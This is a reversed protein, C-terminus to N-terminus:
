IPLPSPHTHLEKDSEGSVEEEGVVLPSIFSHQKPNTIPHSGKEWAQDRIRREYVKLPIM